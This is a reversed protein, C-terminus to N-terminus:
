RGAAKDLCFSLWGQPEQFEWTKIEQQDHLTSGARIALQCPTYSEDSKYNMYIAIENVSVKKPFQINVLHPAPGDSRFYPYSNINIRDREVNDNV